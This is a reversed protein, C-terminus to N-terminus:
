TNSSYFFFILFLILISCSPMINAAPGNAVSAKGPLDIEHADTLDRMLVDRGEVNVVHFAGLM